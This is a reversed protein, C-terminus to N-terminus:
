VACDELNMVAAYFQRTHQFCSWCLSATIVAVALDAASELMAARHGRITSGHPVTLLLRRDRRLIKRVEAKFTSFVNEIPNLMPSYPALRLLTAGSFEQSSFVEEIGSHCPANDLVVVVRELEVLNTIARLMDAMFDKMSTSTNSGYRREELTLDPTESLAELIYDIHEREVKVYRHGGWGHPTPRWEGTTRAISVWNAATKANVDLIRALYKWDENNEAAKLVLSKKEARDIHAM